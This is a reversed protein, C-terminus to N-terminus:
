RQASMNVTEDLYLIPSKSKDLSMKKLLSRPKIYSSHM